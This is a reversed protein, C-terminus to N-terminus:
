GSHYNIPEDKYEKAIPTLDGYCWVVLRELSRKLLWSEGEGSVVGVRAKFQDLPTSIFFGKEPISKGSNRAKLL